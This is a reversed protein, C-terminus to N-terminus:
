IQNKARVIAAIRLFYFRKDVSVDKKKNKPAIGGSLSAAVVVLPDRPCAHRPYM